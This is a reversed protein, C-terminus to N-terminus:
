KNLETHQLDIMLDFKSRLHRALESACYVSRHQGGTCGFNIVLSTFEREIYRRVSQDVLSCVHNLFEGVDAEKELFNVVQQDNGNFSRYEEYRGPNPLSRCDFVFGGGNGNNDEPIGKKYSFSSIKVVLNNSTGKIFRFAPNELIKGLVEKLMPLSEPLMGKQILHQLNTLAYPISKLFHPKNEYYGRFGYAGLAQLIRILVFGGYYEHFSKRDITLYSELIDLYYELLTDKVTEPISAKADYLLSAIDYQLPGKRGGQYDIFWPEGQMLMVNRSQFDRYMFYDAGAKLLFHVLTQFDDELKQEEFPVKALKLFYYKFYNLDWMMSQGDFAQRPYCKSYDLDKGAVVQFVPLLKIVKKYIGIAEEPFDDDNERIESLYNFLTQDGLDSILYVQQFPDEAYVMPVPLQKLAFEKSFSIFAENEKRDENFVGIMSGHKGEIRYYKRYSGSVPLYSVNEPELGSWSHYLERIKIEEDKMKAEEHFKL